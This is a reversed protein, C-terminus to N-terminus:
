VDLEGPGRGRKNWLLPLLLSVYICAHFVVGLPTM